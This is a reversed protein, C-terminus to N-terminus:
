NRAVLRLASRLLDVTSQWAKGEHACAAAEERDGDGLAEEASSRWEIVQEEATRIYHLIDRRNRGCIDAADEASVAGTGEADLQLLTLLAEPLEEDDAAGGDEAPSSPAEHTGSAEDEGFFARGGLGLRLEDDLRDAVSTLVAVAHRLHKPVFPRCYLHMSAHVTGGDWGFSVFRVWRNLQSIRELALPSGRVGVLIPSFLEVYPGDADVRVFVMASGSRIPINGDDDHVPLGGFVPVLAADVLEVLHDRDAPQVALPEDDVPSPEDLVPRPLGLLEAPGTPDGDLGTAILFSPHPVGFVDRIAGVAAEALEALAEPEADIWFNPSSNDDEDPNSAPAGWGLELLAQGQADSLRHREDLFHNSSVEGRVAGDDFGIFQLYPIAGELDNEDYASPLVINMTEDNALGSLAASLRSRMQVWAMALRKDLDFEPPGSRIVRAGPRVTAPDEPEDLDARDVRDVHDDRDARDAAGTGVSTDAASGYVRFEELVVQRLSSSNRCSALYDLQEQRNGVSLEMHGLRRERLLAVVSRRRAGDKALWAGRLFPWADRVFDDGPRAGYGERLAAVPEGTLQLDRALRRALAGPLQEWRFRYRPV